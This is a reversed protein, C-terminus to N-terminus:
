GVVEIATIKCDRSRITGVATSISMGGFGNRARFKTVFQQSGDPAPTSVRTEIVEFSAPDRLSDNLAAEIGIPKGNWANLCDFKAKERREKDAQDQAQTTAAREEAWRMDADDMASVEFIKGRAYLEDRLKVFDAKALKGDLADNVRSDRRVVADFIKAREDLKGQEHLEKWLKNLEETDLEGALAARVRPNRYVAEQEAAARQNVAAERKERNNNAVTAASVIGVWVVAGTGLLIKKTLSMPPPKPIVTGDSMRFVRKDDPENGM